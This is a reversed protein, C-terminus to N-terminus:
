KFMFITLKLAFSHMILTYKLMNAKKSEHKKRCQTVYVRTNETTNTNFVHIIISNYLIVSIM